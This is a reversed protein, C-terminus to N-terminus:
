PKTLILLFLVHVRSTKLVTTPVSYATVLLSNNRRSRRWWWQQKADYNGIHFLPLSTQLPPTTSVTLGPMTLATSTTLHPFPPLFLLSILLSTELSSHIALSWLESSSMPRWLLCSLQRTTRAPASSLFSASLQKSTPLEPSRPKKKHERPFNLLIRGHSLPALHPPPPRLSHTVLYKPINTQLTKCSTPSCAPKIFHLTFHPTRFSLKVNALILM